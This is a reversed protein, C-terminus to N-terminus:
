REVKQYKKVCVTCIKRSIPMFTQAVPGVLLACIVTGLGVTGGLLFGVAAFALDTCMRVIGFPKGSKESIVVAVLDNPGTGAESCIVVTMGFALIVCGAALVTIRIALPLGAHIVPTLLATFVDIIPGGLAMCVLTGIRIQPRDVMLLVAVILVSVALHVRGHTMALWAPWPVMRTLGQILVNFPDSGLNSLLFLTVGFHAVCLGVLLLGIRVTKEKLHLKL